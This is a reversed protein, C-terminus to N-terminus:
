RGSHLSFSSILELNDLPFLITYAPCGIYLCNGELLKTRGTSVCFTQGSTRIDIQLYTEYITCLFRYVYRNATVLILFSCKFVSVGRLLSGFNGIKCKWSTREDYAGCRLRPLHLPFDKTDKHAPSMSKPLYKKKGRCCWWDSM